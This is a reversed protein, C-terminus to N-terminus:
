GQGIQEDGRHNELVMSEGLGEEGAADCQVKHDSTCDAETIAIGKQIWLRLKGLDEVPDDNSFRLLLSSLTM